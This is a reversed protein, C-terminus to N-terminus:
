RVEGDGKIVNRALRDELKTKNALLIEEVDLGLLNALQFTFYLVDGLEKKTREVLEDGEFDGRCHKAYNGAVEGAEAALGAFLYAFRCSTLNNPVVFTKPTFNQYEKITIKNNQM